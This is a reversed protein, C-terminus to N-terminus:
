YATWTVTGADADMVVETGLYFSPNLRGHGAEIGSLVPVGFSEFAEMFLPELYTENPCKEFSGIVIGAISEFLGALKMQSLMRDVKYAPEQIDELFIIRDTFDPQYPTALLHSITSLNGGTLVGRCRGPILARGGSLESLGDDGTLITM